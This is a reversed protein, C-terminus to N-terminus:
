RNDIQFKFAVPISCLTIASRNCKCIMSRYLPIVTSTTHPAFTVNIHHSCTRLFQIM